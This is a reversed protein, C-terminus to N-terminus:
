LEHLAESQLAGFGIAASVIITAGLLLHAVTFLKLLYCLILVLCSAYADLREYETAKFNKALPYLHADPERDFDSEVYPWRKEELVGIRVIAEMTKRVPVGIDERSAQM